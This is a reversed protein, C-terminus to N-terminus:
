LTILNPIKNKRNNYSFPLLMIPRRQGEEHKYQIKSAYVKRKAEKLQNTLNEVKTQLSEAEKYLNNSKLFEIEKKMAQFIEDLHYKQALSGHSLASIKEKEGCWMGLTLKGKDYVGFGIIEGSAAYFKSIGKGNVLRKEFAISGDERFETRAFYADSEVEITKTSYEKFYERRQRCVLKVGQEYRLLEEVKPAGDEYNIFREIIKGYENFKRNSLIVKSEEDIFQVERPEGM